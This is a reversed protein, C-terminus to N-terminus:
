SFLEENSNNIKASYSVGPRVNIEELVKFALTDAAKIVKNVESNKNNLNGFVIAGTPCATQCATRVDQDQIARGEQKATL